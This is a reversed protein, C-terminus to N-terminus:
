LQPKDFHMRYFGSITQNIISFYFISFVVFLLWLCFIYFFAFYIKKIFFEVIYNFYYQNYTRYFLMCLVVGSLSCYAGVVIGGFQILFAFFSKRGEKPNEKKMAGRPLFTKKWNWSKEVKLECKAKYHICLFM